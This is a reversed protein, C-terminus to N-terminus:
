KIMELIYKVSMVQPYSAWEIASFLYVGCVVVSGILIIVLFGIGVEMETKDWAESVNYARILKRTLFFCAIAIALWLIAYLVSHLVMYRGFTPIFEKASNVGMGIKECINNIVENVENAKM